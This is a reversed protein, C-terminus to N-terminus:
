NMADCGRLARKRESESGRRQSHGHKRRDRKEQGDTHRDAQGNSKRDTM